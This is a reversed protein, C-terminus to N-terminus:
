ALVGRENRDYFARFADEDMVFEARAGDLAETRSVDTFTM